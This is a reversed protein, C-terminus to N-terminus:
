PTTGVGGSTPAAIHGYVMWKGQIYQGVNNPDQVKGYPVGTEADVLNSHAYISCERTTDSEPKDCARVYFLYLGTRPLKVTVLLAQTKGILYKREEGYNWMYFDFYDDLTTNTDDWAITLDEDTSMTYLTLDPHADAAAVWEVVVFFLVIILVGLLFYKLKKM